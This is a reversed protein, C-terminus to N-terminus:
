LLVLLSGVTHYLKKPSVHTWKSHTERWLSSLLITGPVSSTALRNRTRQKTRAHLFYMSYARIAMLRFQTCPFVDSLLANFTFLLSPSQKPQFPWHMQQTVLPSLPLSPPLSPLLSPPLSLPSPLTPSLSPPLYPPLFPPLFPPLTPLSHPLSPTLSPPLPPSPPLFPLPPLSPPSPHRNYM